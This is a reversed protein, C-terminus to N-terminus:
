KEKGRKRAKLEAKLKLAEENLECLGDYTEMGGHNQAIQRVAEKLKGDFMGNVAYIRLMKNLAGAATSHDKRM